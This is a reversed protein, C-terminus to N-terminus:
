KANLLWYALDASILAQVITGDIVIPYNFASKGNHPTIRVSRIGWMKQTSENGLIITRFQETQKQLIKDESWGEERFTRECTAYIRNMNYMPQTTAQRNNGKPRSRAAKWHIRNECAAKEYKDSM